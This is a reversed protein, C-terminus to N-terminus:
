LMKRIKLCCNGRRGLFAPIKYTMDDVRIAKEKFVFHDLDKSLEKSGENNFEV